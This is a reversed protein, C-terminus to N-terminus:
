EWRSQISQLEAKTERHRDNITQKILGYTLNHLDIKPLAQIDQYLDKLLKIDLKLDSELDFNIFDSCHSNGIKRFQPDNLEEEM